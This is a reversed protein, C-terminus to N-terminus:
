GSAAAREAWNARRERLEVLKAEVEASRGATEEETAVAVMVQGRERPVIGNIARIVGPVKEAINESLEKLEKAEEVSEATVDGTLYVTGLISKVRVVGGAQRLRENLALELALTTEIDTDTLLQNRVDTVGPVRRSLTGAMTKMTRSRVVGTLTVVCALSTVDIPSDLARIPDYRQLARRVAQILEQDQRQWSTERVTVAM